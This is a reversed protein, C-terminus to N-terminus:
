HHESASSWEQVLITYINDARSIIVEKRGTKMRFLVFDDRPNLDRVTNISIGALELMSEALKGAWKVDEEKRQDETLTGAKEAEKTVNNHHRVITGDGTCIVYGVVGKQKSIRDLSEEVASM